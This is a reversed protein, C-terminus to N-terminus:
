YIIGLEREMTSPAGYDYEATASYDAALNITTGIKYGGFFADPITKLRQTSSGPFIQEALGSTALPRIMRGRSVVYLKPDSAIKIIYTGPRIDVNGGIAISAIEAAPLEKVNRCISSSGTLLDQGSNYWSSIVDKSTMVYRKGNSAYYYVMPSSVSKILTGVAVTASAQTFSSGSGACCGDTINDGTPCFQYATPM